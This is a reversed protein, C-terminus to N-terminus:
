LLSCPIGTSVVISCPNVFLNLSKASLLTIPNWPVWKISKKFLIKPSDLLGLGPSLIVISLSYMLTFVSLWSYEISLLPFTYLIAVLTSPSSSNSSVPWVVSM